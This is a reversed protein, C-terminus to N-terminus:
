PRSVAMPTGLIRDAGSTAAPAVIAATTAVVFVLLLLARIGLTINM